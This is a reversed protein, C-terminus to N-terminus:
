WITLLEAFPGLALSPIFVLGSIIILVTLFLVLYPLSEVKLTGATEPKIKKKALSGAIMMQAVIPLYRGFLIVTGCMVNYFTSNDLLGEFGSGNNTAASFFEYMIQSFGHYGSNTIGERGMETIAALASPFLVLTPLLLIIMAALKIETSEIKKGLYNPARGIMLTGIFVSIFVYTLLNLLGTGVGGYVSNMSMGFFLPLSGLPTWSDHMSNVAGSTTSTTSVGWLASLVPGFRMEKGEMNGVSQDIGLGELAPNSGREGAIGLSLLVTFIVFAAGLLVLGHKRKKVWVGYAYVVAMPTGLLFLNLVINSLITPNEYPHAANAAFFGGGNTGLMKIAELVAVPGRAIQQTGGELTTVSLPGALTQPSGQSILFVAIVLSLPIFYRTLSKVMNTYFNGLHPNEENVIARTFGVILSMGTAASLFMPLVVALLQSLYSLEAEGAYHQQNTNSVFTAASHFAQHWSMGSIDSPNLPLNGQLVFILYIFIFLVTNMMLASIVYEKWDMSKEPNVGILKYIGQEIPNLIPEEIYQKFLKFPRPLYNEELDMEKRFIWGIYEGLIYIIIGLFLFFLAVPLIVEGVM